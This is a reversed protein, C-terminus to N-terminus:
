LLSHEEVVGRVDMEFALGAIPPRSPFWHLGRAAAPGIRPLVVAAALDHIPEVTYLNVATVHQWGAHLGFLRAEMVEMVCAAKARMADASTEGPRVIAAPSLNAQDDLDGAGAVVFTPRDSSTPITYAFGYLVAEEPPAASPAVNTRAVPNHEGVLIDWDALLQRYGKNFSIFGDFPLPQPIRLEVACLSQRPRGQEELHRAIREFGEQYPVPTHLTIRRIAYGPMAIVGASYPAIGTLFRYNGVPHDLLQISCRVQM